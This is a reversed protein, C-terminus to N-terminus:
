REEFPWSAIVSMGPRLGEPLVVPEARVEFTRLDFDGTARTARWTAYQGQANIVTVKVQLKDQKLAPVSVNFVDGVKLGNLLDERLNFTFWPHDIDIISFLPAGASFNEGLEAVRTTVQGSIPARITLESVDVQQQNLSARAQEVRTAALAKEEKSAGAVVLRLNAEAAEKQRIAAELNRATQDVLAQTSAGTSILKAQRNTEEQYLTVDADAAALQAKSADITEPRTSNVRILDAQSVALAADAMHLSATLQPSELEAIVDGQKVVDGVDANLKAVRGPVRPSIDVRNTSVEGQVVLPPPRTAFWLLVCLAVVLGLGVIARIATKM